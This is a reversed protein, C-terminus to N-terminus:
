AVRLHTPKRYANENEGHINKEHEWTRAVRSKLDVLTHYDVEYTEGHYFDIGNTTLAWGAGSPLQINYYFTPIDVDKFIQKKVDREWPNACMNISITKGTPQEEAATMTFSSAQATAHAMEEAATRAQKEVGLQAQLSEIQDQLAKLQADTTIKEAM